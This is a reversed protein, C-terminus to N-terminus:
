NKVCVKYKLDCRFGIPCQGCQDYDMRPNISDLSPSHYTNNGWENVSNMCIGSFNNPKKVCVQGTGCDFDSSCGSNSQINNVSTHRLLQFVQSQRQQELLQQQNQSEQLSNAVNLAHLRNMQIQQIISSRTDIYREYLIQTQNNYEEQTLHGQEKAMWLNNNKVKYINDLEVLPDANYSNNVMGLPGLYACGIFGFCFFISLIKNM